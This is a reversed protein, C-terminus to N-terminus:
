LDEYLRGPNFIRHPDFARKLAHHLKALEPPLPQFVQFRKGVTRFMTAHGGKSRAAAFVEEAKASTRLWRQAGGWDLLWRGPLDALPSAPAVAMRWLNTEGESFFTMTHERLGIWYQSGESVLEGGLQKTAEAVAAEVGSLRITLFPEEYALASLPLPRGMLRVMTELIHDGPVEQCVTVETEPRPLVKLSIELIVGLTGLSGAMMRSLDFGAVNKMVQGGFTLVEGRGTLLKVGLIYDRVAGTFPRRPGSLGAAIMGGVTAPGFHPPEFGLMQGEAALAQELEALPTGSRVTVVLESPEYEVIGCHTGTELLEGETERGYFDKSGGGVIRLSREEAIAAEVQQQLKGTQDMESVSWDPTPCDDVMSM